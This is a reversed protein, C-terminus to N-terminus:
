GAADEAAVPVTLAWPAPTRSGVAAAAALAVLHSARQAQVMDGAHILRQATAPAAALRGVVLRVAQKDLVVAAAVATVM